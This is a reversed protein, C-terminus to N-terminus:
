IIETINRALRIAQRITAEILRGRRNFGLSPMVEAIVEEDTRLQGDSDIWKILRVLDQATYHTISAHQPIAPRTERRSQKTIPGNTRPTPLNKGGCTTTGVPGRTDQHDFYEVAAQYAKLACDVEEEKRMFWDTSWIRHFRWGLAELQQQRLRDRDRATYSSHYSAGDCEIALVFRGPKQPHEAVIDIRFRSVGLQPILKLGKLTLVDFVEAEFDNLPVNSTEIDSFIKGNSAAYQLYDRLLELGSGKRIRLPDIDWHNFSSVVTVKQRARTIAVNLRRRGGESLLPGFRLPLGGTRDKGYGISIIIVDREDGQVRELNKVFFREPQNADFFASLEPHNELERDLAGQIRDMHKIGMTIVGLTQDANKRAHDLVLELVKRVEASASEEQGDVGSGQTVEAHKIAPPGGPGPFTVLRDHYIHHNSFSILSEDKSRYHWDLYWQRVFPMMLDLLSEFGESAGADENEDYEEDDSAAFFATPPLQHNDGAVVVKSARLIAPIADEPLIQSAEDFIVVDFYRKKGDLLQSVSLPSAMWCPCVATMVEAAEAFLRRLPLHRRTKQVERRILQEQEPHANMADVAKQGHARRVRDATIAIRELDLRAFDKVFESHTVGMFGKIEPDQRCASDLTSSYWAYDFMRPWLGEAAKQTRIELVLSGAGIDSLKSEIATLKPIKYPTQTESALAHILSGLEQISLKGLGKHPLIADLQALNSFLADFNQRHRQYEPLVSPLSSGSALIKWRELQQVAETMAARLDCSSAKHDIRLALSAARARRYDTNTLWAWASAIRGSEGPGLNSILEPLNQKYIDSSYHSLIGQVATLLDAVERVEGVSTPLRLGTECIVLDLSALFSPWAKNDMSWVLDLAAQVANGDPLFAGTWPSVDNRLFLSCLGGAEILLDRAEQAVAPTIRSLEAGSWQTTANVRGALKLLAGQIQYISLGAPERLAHLRAVHANLRNRRDVLRQHLSESEVPVASRVEDLTHAVQEMVKRPSIDAGHLDIALYGLGVRALRKAVVELAAKKEAVFLVHRGAAALSAILNAITQSKGTGPPGHVVVDQGALVARIACQQSSDADLITFENEPPIHDLEKPDLAKAAASVNARATSDGAIAAILGHEELQKQYTKLDNVMAMKQFAFNGLVTCGKVGFGEVDGALRELETFLPQPDFAEGSGPGRVPGELAPAALLPQPDLAEGESSGSLHSLLDEPQLTINFETELFHLLVPNVQMPGAGQLQFSQTGQGKSALSVPALLVPAEPDRGGDSAPWTAMGMAIFLTELGKEERNALARRGIQTLKNKVASADEESNGLLKSVAVSAGALVGNMHSNAGTSLSLTGTKLPRYYLLNNRRSLDILKKIWAQRAQEVLQHRAESIATVESFAPMALSTAFAPDRWCLLANPVDGLTYFAIHLLYTYKLICYRSYVEGRGFGSARLSVVQSVEFEGSLLRLCHLGHALCITRLPRRILGM